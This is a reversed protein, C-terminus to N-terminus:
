PSWELTARHMRVSETLRGRKRDEYPRGDRLMAWVVDARRRGLAIMARGSSKGEARKRLYYGRSRQHCYFATFALRYFIRKLM